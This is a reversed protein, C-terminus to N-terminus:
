PVLMNKLDSENIIIVGLTKAKDFKSGPSDGAVLYDTKSSVSGTVTGGAGEILKKAQSRTLTELKGTLVFTMGMFTSEGTIRKVKEITIGSKILQDITDQNNTGAFFDVISHAVIPGIGEISELTEATEAAISKIDDYADALIRATHEGAHRIGLAYLFRAFSIHKSKEIALMINQASKEGMRELDKLIEVSLGFLDAYSFILKRDVLQDILKDGLGDIDFAGKAAFHKIKGKIIAPCEDNVCRTVAEEEDRLVPKGCEPCESPMVFQRETGNRSSAIVKVVEPIVDGARQVFVWDNIRVDKKLIEDSNHLTARSVMVGAVNVPELHAVPTLAGTRGVQIQIDLVRTREQLAKFKIAIAWRPSRSTVGLMQQDEFNDVKVVMGDIEYALDLRKSDLERYYATVEALPVKSLILPNTRFGLKKLKQLTEAQSNTQLVTADSVNYIYIELPRQATVASDLQRLSGAAANRPNAFLPHDQNAREENLSKFNEKSIFIEGRVEILAPIPFNENKQLQLPVTQITKVNATIIEGTLGDGRTSAMTLVGKEYILEVAVGDIKPEATYLIDSETKLIKKVRQDFSILDEENFGKDLSMMPVSHAVTDFKDLPPSGVRASPSDASSFQPWSEELEILEKMLRDYEADSIVPEDLIFYRHNHQHLDRRLYAIRLEIEPNVKDTM